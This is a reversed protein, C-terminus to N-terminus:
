QIWIEFGRLQCSGGAVPAPTGPTVNAVAQVSITSLDTGTPVTFTYTAEATPGTFSALTTLASGVKVFIEASMASNAASAVVSLTMPATTVKAPFGSWICAGETAVAVWGYGGPGPVSWWSSSVIADTAVNNDYAAAPSATTQTGGDLYTSPQYRPVYTPTVIEGILFYGAKGIFDSTNQTAYPHINGGAFGPDIYYVYYNQAQNLGGIVAYASAPTCVATAGGVTATFNQVQIQATGDSLGQALLTGVPAVAVGSYTLVSLTSSIQCPGAMVWASPVGACNVARVQVNYLAGDDVGPIFCCYASPDLKGFATWIAAGNPQWQVELHGGHVVNADNPVTWSVYLSNVSIGGKNTTITSPYVVGDVTEGPGSYCIIGQPPNCVQVSVNTPQTYGQPTLQETTSWDFITPDTEAIDLEVALVPAGNSKDQVFRSALVEFNKNLWTYRPHTIQIIDLAVAQYAKMTCRITGRGQNRTRLLEIKALRQAAASSVTCPFNAEKFIREGQDEALWGDGMFQPETPNSAYGHTADQMYAPVDGQQYANEPSIYTGKVANCTNMISMRPKWKISLIDADTLPLSPSVWSGPFISYLGGQNSIRGACSTLMNELITGRGQNLAFSHDCCYRPQTGGGALSITEDCLNAAAILSATPIDTGISLGFGGKTAPQSLYDAICLAANRTFGHTGLRPDFIDDKGDIVFSVNPISSPFVTEDYGMRVYVMTRGLCLDTPGWSTGSALLGAFTATHNGNLFEVYIKDKYDAYTTTASGGSSTGDTGGCIFTFTTNDTPNPQTVLWTGNYTNDGVNQVQLSLGDQGAIGGSLTMTVVGSSRSISVINMVIQSYPTSLYGAGSPAVTVPKGDIRLQWSGISCPHCALAYVRHLEKDQSTGQSSNSEEFIKIGGVKQTGYIYNWPGIPSSVGVAIGAQNGQLAAGVGAMVESAGLSVLAGVVAAHSMMMAGIMFGGTPVLVAAGIAAAGIAVETIAKSM